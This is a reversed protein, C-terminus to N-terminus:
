SPDTTSVRNEEEEVDNDLTLDDRPKVRNKKFIDQVKNFCNFAGLEILILIVLWFVFHICMILIDGGIAQIELDDIKLEPRLFFIRPKISQYMLSDTLCYSPVIKFVWILVDGVAMTSEFIRLFAVIIVGIGGVM